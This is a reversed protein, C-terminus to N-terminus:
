LLDEYKNTLLKKVSVNVLENIYAHGATTTVLGDRLAFSRVKRANLATQEDLTCIFQSGTLPIEVEKIVEKEVEVTQPPQNELESLRSEKAEIAAKLETIQKLLSENEEKLNELIGESIGTNKPNEATKAKTVIMAFADAMSCNATEQVTYLYERDSINADKITLTKGKM